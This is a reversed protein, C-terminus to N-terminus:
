IVHASLHCTEKVYGLFAETDNQTNSFNSKKKSKYFIFIFVHKATKKEYGKLDYSQDRDSHRGQTVM